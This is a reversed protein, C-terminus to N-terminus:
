SVDLMEIGFGALFRVEAENAANARLYDVIGQLALDHSPYVELLQRRCALDGWGHDQWVGYLRYEAAM